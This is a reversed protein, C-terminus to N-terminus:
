SKKDYELGEVLELILEEVTKIRDINDISSGLYVHGEVASRIGSKLSMTRNEDDNEIEKFILAHQNLTSFRKLDKSSSEIIKLKTKTSIPSESTAAFLTGIGVMKAGLKIFQNIDSVKGIGGSPIIMLDPKLKQAEIFMNILSMRNPNSRGGGEPGKLIIGDVDPLPQKGLIKVFLKINSFNKKIRNIEDITKSNVDEILEIVSIQHETVIDLVNTDLFNKAGMSIMLENSGTILKFNKLDNSFSELDLISDHIEYNYLSLSPYAGAVSVAAALKLDSVQNM